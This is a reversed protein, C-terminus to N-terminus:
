KESRVALLVGDSAKAYTKAVAHINWGGTEWSNTFPLQTGQLLCVECKMKEAQELLVEM